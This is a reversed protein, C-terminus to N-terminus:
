PTVQDTQRAITLTLLGIKGGATISNWRANNVLVWVGAAADIDSAAFEGTNVNAYVSGGMACAVSGTVTINMTGERVFAIEDNVKYTINGDGPYTSMERGITRLSIGYISGDASAGLDVNRSKAATPKVAKGFGIASHARASLRESNTYSIGYLTGNVENRTNIVYDQKPM